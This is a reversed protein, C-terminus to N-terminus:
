IWIALFSFGLFYPFALSDYVFLSDFYVKNM